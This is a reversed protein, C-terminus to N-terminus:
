AVHGQCGARRAHQLGPRLEAQVQASELGEAEADAHLQLAAAARCSQVCQRLRSQFILSLCLHIPQAAGVATCLLAPCPELDSPQLVGPLYLAIIVWCALYYDFAFNAANPMAISAIRKAKIVPMALWAMTLESSVGLPYLVIFGTYRLWLLFYPPSAKAEQMMYATHSAPNIQNSPLQPLQNLNTRRSM